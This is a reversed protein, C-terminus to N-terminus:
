KPKPYIIESVGLYRIYIADQEYHALALDVVQGIKAGEVISTLALVYVRTKDAVQQGQDNVWRGLAETPLRTIGGVLAAVALEFAQHHAETFLAGNNHNTPILLQIEFM